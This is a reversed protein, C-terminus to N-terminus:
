ISKGCCFFGEELTGELVTGVDICCCGLQAPRLRLGLRQSCGLICGNLSYGPGVIGVNGTTAQGQGLSYSKYIIPATM